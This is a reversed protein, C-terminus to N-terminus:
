SRRSICDGIHYWYSRYVLHIITVTDNDNKNISVTSVTADIASVNGTSVATSLSHINLYM